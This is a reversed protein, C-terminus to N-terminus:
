HKAQDKHYIEHAAHEGAEQQRKTAKSARFSGYAIVIGLIVAGGLVAFLWPFSEM